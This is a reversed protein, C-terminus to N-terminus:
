LPAPIAVSAGCTSRPVQVPYMCLGGLVGRSKCHNGIGYVCSPVNSPEKTHRHRYM